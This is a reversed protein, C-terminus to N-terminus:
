GDNESDSSSPKKNKSRNRTKRKRLLETKYLSGDKTLVEPISEQFANVALTKYYDSASERSLVVYDNSNTALM